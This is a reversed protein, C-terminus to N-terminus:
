VAAHLSFCSSELFMRVNDMKFQLLYTQASLKFTLMKWSRKKYLELPGM